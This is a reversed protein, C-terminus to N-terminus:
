LEINELVVGYIKNGCLLFIKKNTEDIYVDKMDTFKDSIYQNIFEGSQRNFVLLRNNEPDLIYIFKYDVKTFIKTPSTAIKSPQQLSFDKFYGNLFKIIGGDKNLVYVEGDITLSVSNTLDFEGEQVWTSGKSYGSITRAHKYIQNNKADLIYLKDNYLALDTIEQDSKNFAIDVEEIEKLDINFEAAQKSGTIFILSNKASNANSKSFFDLDTSNDFITGLKKSSEEVQYIANTKPNYTYISSDLGLIRNAEINGPVDVIALPDEIRIIKDIKDFHVNIKKALEEKEKKTNIVESNKIDPNNIINQAEFLLEKAKEFDSYILADAALKENETAKILQEKVFSSQEEDSKNDAQLGISALFALAFVVSTISFIKSTLPLGQYKKYIIQLYYLIKDLVKTPKITYKNKYSTSYNKIQGNSDPKKDETKKQRINLKILLNGIIKKFSNITLLSYNKLMDILVKPNEKIDELTNKKKDLTELSDLGSMNTLEPLKLKEEISKESESLAEIFISAIPDVNRPNKSLASQLQFSAERPSNKTVINKISDESFFDLLEKTSFFLKDKRQITGSVIDTFIKTPATESQGKCNNLSMLSSERFLYVKINGTCVLQIHDDYVSAIALNLKDLWEIHNSEILTTFTQNIKNITKEFNKVPDAKKDPVINFYELRSVEQLIDAIKSGKHIGGGISITLFLSGLETCRDDNLVFSKCYIKNGVPNYFNLNQYDLKLM